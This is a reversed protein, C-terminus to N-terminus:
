ARQRQRSSTSRRRPTASRRETSRGNSQQKKAFQTEAYAKFRQLDTRAARKHFRLGSALKELVGHPVWDYNLEIRTLRPALEHFSLVGVGHDDKWSILENERKALIQARWSRRRGWINEHWEVRQEGKPEVGEVRHLVDGLRKFNTWEEYAFAVPVGVDVSHQIPLRRGRGWGSGRSGSGSGGSLKDAAKSALALPGGADEVNQKLQEAQEGAKEKISPMVSGNVLSPVKRVAYTSAAAVASTVIPLLLEKRQIDKVSPM